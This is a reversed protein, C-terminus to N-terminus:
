SFSLWNKGSSIRVQSRRPVENCFKALNNIMDNLVIQQENLEKNSWKQHYNIKTAALAHATLKNKTIEVLQEPSAGIWVGTEESFFM